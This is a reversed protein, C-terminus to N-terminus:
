APQPPTFKATDFMLKIDVIKGEKVRYWEMMPVSQQLPATMVWDYMLAVEDGQELARINEHRTDWGQVLPCLGALFSDRDDFRMMPGEFRMEEGILNRIKDADKATFAGLFQKAVSLPSTM